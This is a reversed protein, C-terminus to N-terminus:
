NVDHVKLRAWTYRDLPDGHKMFRHYHNTCYGRALIPKGCGEVSCVNQDAM